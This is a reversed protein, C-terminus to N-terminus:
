DNQQRRKPKTANRYLYYKFGCSNSFYFQSTSKLGPINQVVLGFRYELSISFQNWTNERKSLRLQFIVPVYARLSFPTKTRINEFEKDFSKNPSSVWPPPTRMIQYDVWARNHIGMGAQIGYGAGASFQKKPNTHFVQNFEVLLFHEHLNFYRTEAIFDQAYATDYVTTGTFPDTYSSYMTDYVASISSRSYYVGPIIFYEYRIGATIKSRGYRKKKKHYPTFEAYASLCLAGLLNKRRYSGTTFNTSDLLASGPAIQRQEEIEPPPIFSTNYGITGGLSWLKLRCSDKQAKLFLVPFLLLFIFVGTKSM